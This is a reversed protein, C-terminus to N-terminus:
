KSHIFRGSGYLLSRRLEQTTDSNGEAEFMNGHALGCPRCVEARLVERTASAADAITLSIRGDIAGPAKCVDCKGSQAFAYSQVDISPVYSFIPHGPLVSSHSMSGHVSPLQVGPDIPLLGAAQRVDADRVLSPFSRLFNSLWADTTQQQRDWVPRGALVRLALEKLWAAHRALHPLAPIVDSRMAGPDAILVAAVREMFLDREQQVVAYASSETASNRGRESRGALPLARMPAFPTLISSPALTTM